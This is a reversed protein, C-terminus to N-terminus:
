LARYADAAELPKRKQILADGLRQVVDVAEATNPYRSIFERSITILEDRRAMVELGDILKVMVERNRTHSSQAKTFREGVRVLGFVRGEIYYLDMLELMVKAAQPSSDLTKNLQSELATAKQDVASPPPAASMALPLALLTLLIRTKM